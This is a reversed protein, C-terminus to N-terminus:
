EDIAANRTENLHVRATQVRAREDITKFRNDIETKLTNIRIEFEAKTLMDM